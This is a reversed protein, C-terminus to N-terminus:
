IVSSPRFARFMKLWNEFMWDYNLEMIESAVNIRNGIGLFRTSISPTKVSGDAMEKTM